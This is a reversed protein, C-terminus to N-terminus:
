TTPDQIHNSSPDTAAGTYHIADYIATAISRGIKRKGGQIESLEDISKTQLKPLSYACALAVAEASAKGLGPIALLFCMFIRQPSNNEAKKVHIAETYAAAAEKATTAMGCCYTTPDAVLALAIRRIWQATEKITAAQFVPITHRLQLRAIANQLNVETFTGRCWSRSLSPSWPPAEVVYGIATGTGRLAYLRARQERYRGDKQSAGLDEATKRELVVYPSAGSVDGAPYFAIDGVDLPARTIWWGAPSDPASYAEMERCLDDERMDIVVKIPM